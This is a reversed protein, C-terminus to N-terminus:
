CTVGIINPMGIKSKEGICWVISFLVGIPHLVKFLFFFRFHWKEKKLGDMPHVLVLFHERWLNTWANSLHKFIQSFTTLHILCFVQNLLNLVQFVTHCIPLFIRVKNSIELITKKLISNLHAYLKKPLYNLIKPLFLNKSLTNM